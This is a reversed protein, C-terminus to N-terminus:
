VDAGLGLLLVLVPPVGAARSLSGDPLRYGPVPHAGAFTAAAPLLIMGAAIGVTPPNVCYGLVAAVVCAAGALTVPLFIPLLRLTEARGLGWSRKSGARTAVKPASEM